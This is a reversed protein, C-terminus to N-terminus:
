GLANLMAELKLRTEELESEPLSGAVIGAGAFLRARAGSLEACRLAIAMEGQGSRDIWGVPGAYRGRDMGELRRIVEVARESPVGGVAATPHLLGTLELVSVPRSMRGEFRTALHQVNALRLLEPAPSRELHDCIRELVRGVSAAAMEHEARDKDSCLLERGLRADEAADPSRRISGALPVSEVRSGFRRILLEPSAGVLGDVSFVFCEPFRARLRELIRRPDFRVKSWVAYDRALVVKSLVGGEILELAAAVAELWAVDPISAGAYRPRDVPWVSPDGVVPGAGDVSTEFWRDGSRGVVVEPVVLVSGSSRDDFTASVFAIPGTGPLGVPDDVEVTRTWEEWAAAARRFRDPGTGLDLRLAEGWGVLDIGESLWVLPPRHEM